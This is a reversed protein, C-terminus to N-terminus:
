IVMLTELRLSCGNALTIRDYSDLVVTKRGEIMGRLMTHLKALVILKQNDRRPLVGVPPYIRDRNGITFGHITDNLCQTAGLIRPPFRMSKEQRM